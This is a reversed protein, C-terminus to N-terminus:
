ASLCEIVACDPTDTRACNELIAGLRRELASLSAIKELVLELQRSAEAHVEACTMQHDNMGLMARIVDLPFGLERARRIFTLRATDSPSYLRRGADSRRPVPLLGSKEYFRITEIHVGSKRSLRGITFGDM